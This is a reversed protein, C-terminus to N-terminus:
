GSVGTPEVVVTEGTPERRVEPAYLGRYERRWWAGTRAREQRSTFWYQWLVTRVALPKEGHFPDRAFLALVTPEGAFLRAEAAIVWPAGRWSGLSAFWLNWEFRPQYPAYIGPAQRIDQPKYRFPYAIWTTGDRTGQFEVEYRGRTMVAFLGYSNAIRFPELAIAPGLLPGPIGRGGFAVITSYFVWSLAAAAAVLRARQFRRPPTTGIAAPPVRLRSLTSDDLLLLGLILVLYNLFAYNATLIIGVQLLTAVVFAANRYRRPLFVLWVVGLEVVLTLLATAAHFGHPLQHAYWGVWTPLPGNEYYKDMASLDRWQPEGSALKVVGSEFYIRFWEWRLLWLSAPSPPHAAGLRPRLGPPALFLSLFGAELLMGDSQYSSFDQAAAVFSLFCLTALALSARPWLNFVLGLSAAFGIVVLTTLATDSASIWLLTPAYWFRNAPFARAVAGLYPGAPLIGRPGLLGHIQFALSYFASFFVLGLARLFLFRAWLYSTAGSRPPGFFAEFPSGGPPPLAPERLRDPETM